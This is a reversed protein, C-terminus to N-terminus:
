RLPFNTYGLFAFAKQKQTLAYIRKVTNRSPRTPREEKEIVVAFKRIINYLM